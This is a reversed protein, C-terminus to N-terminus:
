KEGTIGLNFTYRLRLSHSKDGYRHDTSYLYEAVLNPKFKWGLSINSLWSKYEYVTKYTSYTVEYIPAGNSSRGYTAVEAYHFDRRLATLSSASLLLNRWLNTQAAAHASIFTGEASRLSGPYSPYSSIGFSSNIPEQPPRDNNFVGGAVDFDLLIKSSLAFGLGAGFRARRALYKTVSEPPVDIKAVSTPRASLGLTVGVVSERRANIREYLYSGEIGYFLRRTLPARFRAGVESSLNSVNTKGLTISWTMPHSEDAYEDVYLGDQYSSTIGQRFYLGLKKGDSFRRTFGFTLRTREFRAKSEETHGSNFINSKYKSEDLFNGDGMLRDVGIGVGTKGHDGFSYAAILSVNLANMKLDQLYHSMHGTYENDVINRSRVAFASAGGGVVLRSGPIPTFFTLQPSVSYDYNPREKDSLYPESLSPLMLLRGEASKCEAANAPNELSDLHQDPFASFFVPSIENSNQAVGDLSRQYDEGLGGYFRSRGNLGSGPGSFASSIDGGPRVIVRNGPTVLRRNDPINRSWVEVLGERVIVLTEGGSRVDVIFETGRVAISATPSNLRYPNPKGGVHHIKVLVRGMLIELLERASHPVIFTKLIVRSNPLVTIQGGDSLSIVVRGNWGTEITNGPELPDNRKPTFVGPQTGVYIRAIGKVSRVSARVYDGQARSAPAIFLFLSIALTLRLLFLEPHGKV